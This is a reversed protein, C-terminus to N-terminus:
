KEAKKATNEQLLDIVALTDRQTLKAEALFCLTSFKKLLNLITSRRYQKKICNRLGMQNLFLLIASFIAIVSALKTQEVYVLGGYTLGQHSYVTTEVRNAPL